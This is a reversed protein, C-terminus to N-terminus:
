FSQMSGYKKGVPTDNLSKGQAANTIREEIYGHWIEQTGGKERQHIRVLVDKKFNCALLVSDEETTYQIQYESRNPKEKMLRLFEKAQNQSGYSYSQTGLNKHAEGSRKPKIQTSAAPPDEKSQESFDPTLIAGIGMFASIAVVALLMARPSAETQKNKKCHPCEPANDSYKKKCKECQIIAM